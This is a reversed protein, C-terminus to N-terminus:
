AAARSNVQKMSDIADWTLVIVSRPLDLYKAVDYAVRRLEDSANGFAFAYSRAKERPCQSGYSIVPM